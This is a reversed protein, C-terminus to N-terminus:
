RWYKFRDFIDYNAEVKAKKIIEKMREWESVEKKYQECHSHCSLTRLKCHHCCKVGAVM